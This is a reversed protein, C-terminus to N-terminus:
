HLYRHVGVDSMLGKPEQKGTLSCPSNLEEAPSTEQKINMDGLLHDAANRFSGPPEPNSLRAPFNSPMQPIKIKKQRRASVERPSSKM